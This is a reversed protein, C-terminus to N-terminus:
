KKIKTDILLREVIMNNILHSEIIEDIDEKDVWTYWVDDPYVVVVPGLSCQGLCGAISIRVQGNGHIGLQKTKEKAYKRMSVSDSDNCCEKSDKTQNTCFFVHKSYSV